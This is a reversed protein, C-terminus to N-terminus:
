LSIRYNPIKALIQLTNKALVSNELERIAAIALSQKKTFNGPMHNLEITEYVSFTNKLVKCYEDLPLRTYNYNLKYTAHMLLYLIPQYDIPLEYFRFPSSPLLNNSGSIDTFMIGLLYLVDSETKFDPTLRISRSEPLELLVMWIKIIDLMPYKIPIKLSNINEEVLVSLQLPKIEILPLNNEVVIGKTTLRSLNQYENFATVLCAQIYGLNQILQPIAFGEFFLHMQCDDMFNKLLAKQNPIEIFPFSSGIEKAFGDLGLLYGKYFQEIIEKTYTETIPQTNELLIQNNGFINNCFVSILNPESVYFVRDEEIEFREFPFGSNYKFLSNAPEFLGSVASLFPFKGHNDTNLGKTPSYGTLHLFYM